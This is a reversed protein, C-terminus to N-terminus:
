KEYKELAATLAKEVFDSVNIKNQMALMKVQYWLDSDIIISTRQKKENRKPRGIKKKKPEKTEQLNKLNENAVKARDRIEELKKETAEKKASVKGLLDGSIANNFNEKKGM